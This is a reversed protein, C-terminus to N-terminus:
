YREQQAQAVLAQVFAVVEGPTCNARRSIDSAIQQFDEDANLRSIIEQTHPSLKQVTDPFMQPPGANPDPSDMGLAGLYYVLNNIIFFINVIFSIIGWWGLTLNIATMKWFTSHICPKCLNGEMTSTFRIVLVGINQHFAVAKTPATIGCSQCMM